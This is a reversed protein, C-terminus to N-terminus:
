PLAVTRTELLSNPEVWSWMTMEITLYRGGARARLRRPPWIHAGPVNPGNMSTPRWSRSPVGDASRSGREAAWRPYGPDRASGGPDPGSTGRIFMQGRAARRVPACSTYVSTSSSDVLDVSPDSAAVMRMHGHPATRVAPCGLGLRGPAPDAVPGAGGAGGTPVVTSRDGARESVAPEIALPLWQPAVLDPGAPLRGDGRVVREVPRRRSECRGGGVDALVSRGNPSELEDLDSRRRGRRRASAPGHGVPLCAGARGVSRGRALDM